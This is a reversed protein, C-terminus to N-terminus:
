LPLSFAVLEGLGVGALFATPFLIIYALRILRARRAAKAELAERRERIIRAVISEGRDACERVYTLGDYQYHTM